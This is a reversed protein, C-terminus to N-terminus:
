IFIEIQAKTRLSDIFVQTQQERNQDRLYEEIRTRVEELPITRAAQKDVVKIIHYGFRTEVLESTQGPALAFAAEEFPGVMQGHEFYDLDGGRPASGPDQSHQKALEAFDGGAKVQNLVDAAKARAADRAAADANEPVGILIHSARIREGQQFSNSAYFQNVQETTVAASTSLAADILGTIQLGRRVDERFETETMHQQELTQQFVQDSPFQKRIEAARADVEGDPVAIKRTVSEQTLLRYAILQDLVGRFVRDRQDAPVTRGARSELQTVASELDAKNIAEGNVRAVVDPLQAPVPKAAEAPAAAPVQPRPDAAAVGYLVPILVCAALLAGPLHLNGVRLVTSHTRPV